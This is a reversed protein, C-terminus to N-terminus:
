IDQDPVCVPCFHRGESYGLKELTERISRYNALSTVLIYDLDKAAAAEPPIIPIGQISGQISSDIICEWHIQARIREIFARTAGGATYLAIRAKPGPKSSLCFLAWSRVMSHSPIRDATEPVLRIHFCDQESASPSLEGACALHIRRVLHAGEVIRVTVAGACNITIPLQTNGSKDIDVTESGQSSMGALVLRCPGDSEIELASKMSIVPYGFNKLTETLFNFRALDEVHMQRKWRAALQPDPRIRGRYFDTRALAPKQNQSIRRTLPELMAPSYTCELFDCLKSITKDPQLILDEYRIRHIRDPYEAMLRTMINGQKRFQSPFVGIGTRLMSLFTDRPDRTLHVIKAGPYLDQLLPMNEANKQGIVQLGWRGKQDTLSANRGTLSANLQRLANHWAEKKEKKSRGNKYYHIFQHGAEHMFPLWHCEPSLWCDSAKNIINELLTTGSRPLSILLFSPDMINHKRRLM